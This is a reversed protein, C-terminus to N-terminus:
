QHRNGIQHAFLAWEQSSAPEIVFVPEPREVVSAVVAAADLVFCDGQRLVTGRPLWTGFEIGSDTRRLGHVHTREQWGLPVTDRGFGRATVPLEGDAFVREVITM